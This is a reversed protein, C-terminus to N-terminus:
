KAAFYTELQPWWPWVTASEKTFVMAETVLTVTVFIGCRLKQTTKPFTINGAADLKGALKVDPCAPNFQLNLVMNADTRQGTAYYDIILKGNQQRDWMRSYGILRGAAKERYEFIGDYDYTINQGAGTAAAKIIGVYRSNIPDVIVPDPPPPQTQGTSTTTTPLAEQVFDDGSSACGSLVFVMTLALVLKM